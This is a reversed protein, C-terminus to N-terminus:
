LWGVGELWTSQLDNLRPWNDLLYFEILDDTSFFEELYCGDRDHVIGPAM